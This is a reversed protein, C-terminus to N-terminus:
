EDLEHSPVWALFPPRKPKTVLKGKAKKQSITVQAMTPRKQFSNNMENEDVMDMEMDVNTTSATAM